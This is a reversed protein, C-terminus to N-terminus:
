EQMENDSSNSIEEIRRKKSRITGIEDESM